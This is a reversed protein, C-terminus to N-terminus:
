VKVKFLLHGVLKLVYVIKAYLKINLQLLVSIEFLNIWQLQNNTKCLAVNSSIIYFM